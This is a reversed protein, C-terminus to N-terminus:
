EKLARPENRIPRAELRRKELNYLRFGIDRVDARPVGRKIEGGSDRCDVGISYITVGDPRKVYKLPLGDFPDTGVEPLLEKPVDSLANPWHGNQQRFREVAMAAIACRLQARIALQDELAGKVNTMADRAAVGNAGREFPYRPMAKLQESEPLKPIELTQSLIRLM